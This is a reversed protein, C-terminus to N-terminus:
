ELVAAEEHFELLEPDARQDWIRVIEIRDEFVQYVVAFPTKRVSFKRLGDMGVPQGIYPSFVINDIAKVYHRRAAAAGEPFIKEYYTRFWDLDPKTSELFVLNM